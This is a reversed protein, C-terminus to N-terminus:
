TLRARAIHTPEKAPNTRGDLDLIVTPGFRHREEWILLALRSLLALPPTFRLPAVTGSLSLRPMRSVCGPPDQNNNNAFMLLKANNAWQRCGSILPEGIDRSPNHM